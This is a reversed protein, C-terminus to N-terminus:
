GVLRGAVVVDVLREEVLDELVAETKWCCNLCQLGVVGGDWLAPLSVASEALSVTIRSPLKFTGDGNALAFKLLTVLTDVEDIAVPGGGDKALLTAAPPPFIVDGGTNLDGASLMGRTRAAALSLM